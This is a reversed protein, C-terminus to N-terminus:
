LDPDGRGRQYNARLAQFTPAFRRSVTAGLVRLKVPASTKIMKTRNPEVRTPNSRPNTRSATDRTNQIPAMQAAQFNPGKTSGCRPPKSAPGLTAGHTPRSTTNTSTTRAPQTTPM